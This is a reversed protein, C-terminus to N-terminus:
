HFDKIIRFSNLFGLALNKRTQALDLPSKFKYLFNQFKFKFIEISFQSKIWKRDWRGPCKYNEVAISFLEM